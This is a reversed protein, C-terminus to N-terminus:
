DKKVYKLMQEKSHGLEEATDELEKIAPMDKFKDTLYIHRLMSASIGKGFIANLERTFNPQSFPTGDRDSFVYESRVRMAKKKSEWKKLLQLLEPSGIDVRQEGYTKATKYSNFVFEKKTWDIYNKTDDKKWVLDTYDKIRRPAQLIFISAIVYKQLTDYEKKTISESKKKFLPTAKQKLDEYIKKLDEMSKWNKEQKESKEQSEEKENHTKIDKMMRERYMDCIDEENKTGNECLALVSALRAKRLSYKVKELASLVKRMGAKTFFLKYMDDLSKAETGVVNKYLIRLSSHYADLTPQSVKPKNQKLKKMLPVFLDTM